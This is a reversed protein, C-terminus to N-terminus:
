NHASNSKMRRNLSYSGIISWPRLTVMKKSCIMGQTIHGNRRLIDGLYLYAIALNPNIEIAKRQSSEAEELKGLDLLINGLNSHAEAYNPKLEITKRTFTEAEQLNGLDRFITGLNLYAEAFDPKLEIAKRISIEAEKLKGLGILIVGYNSFVRHHIFGKNIFDQYYKAAESIKGEKHFKFAQNIIQVQSEQNDVNPSISINDKIVELAFPVPFIKVTSREKKKDTKRETM